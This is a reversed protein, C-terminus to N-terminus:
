FAPSIAFLTSVWSSLIPMNTASRSRGHTSVGNRRCPKRISSSSCIAASRAWQSNTITSRARERPSWYSPGAPAEGAPAGACPTTCRMALTAGPAATSGSATVGRAGTPGSAGLAPRGRGAAPGPRAALARGIAGWAEEMGGSAAGNEAIADAEPGPNKPRMIVANFPMNRRSVAGAGRSTGTSDAWSNSARAARAGGPIAIVVYTSWTLTSCSTGRARSTTSREASRSAFSTDSMRRPCLKSTSRTSSITSSMTSLMTRLGSARIHIARRRSCSM